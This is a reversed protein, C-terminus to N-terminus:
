LAYGCPATFIRELEAMEAHTISCEDMANYNVRAAALACNKFLWSAALRRPAAIIRRYDRIRADYQEVSTLGRRVLDEATFM